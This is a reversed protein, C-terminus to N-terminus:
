TKYYLILLKIGNSIKGDGLKKILKFDEETIRVCIPIKKKKLSMNKKLENITNQKNM